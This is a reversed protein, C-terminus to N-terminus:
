QRRRPRRHDVSRREALRPQPDGRQRRRLHRGYAGEEFWRGAVLQQRDGARHDALLPRGPRQGGLEKELMASLYPRVSVGGTDFDGRLEAGIGGTFSKASVSGVNLTLAPDGSETYGDVKAKAYDLAVVPGARMIGVPFLYGAKAGALWHNGDTKAACARSWAKATSTSSRGLRLRSLRPSPAPSRSAASAASRGAPRGRDRSVNGVFKARPRSYNGAIGVTGTGFGYEVGATVGVGDIDFEDTPTVPSRRRALFTDGVLFLKLGEAVDGDRPSGLDVRSNLTRGFQRATDLGLESPAELTLPAQLQTAIYQAVIAFGTSTLHLGDFYFLYGTSNVLCVPATPTPSPCTYLSAASGQTIGYAAPNAIVNDLVRNLDLYHVMVGNAAYGALTAKFARISRAPTLRGFGAQAATNGIVEPLRSTDGALFSITPAGAAVLRDLQTTAGAVSM